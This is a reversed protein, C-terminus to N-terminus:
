GTRKWVRAAMNRPRVEGSSVTFQLARDARISIDADIGGSPIGDAYVNIDDTAGNDATQFRHVHVLRPSNEAQVAGFSASTGGVIRFFMGAYSSSVDKWTMWPWIEAPAKEKPLQVYTFGLPILNNKLNMFESQLQSLVWPQVKECLILNKKACPVDM